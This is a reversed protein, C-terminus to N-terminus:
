GRTAFYFFLGYSIASGFLSTYCLALIDASTLDVLKGNMAPDHNLVSIALM